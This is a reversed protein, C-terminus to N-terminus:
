PNLTKNTTFFTVLTGAKYCGSKYLKNEEVGETVTGGQYLDYRKNPLLKGSTFLLYDCSLYSLSYTLVEREGERLHLLTHSPFNHSFAFTTQSGEKLTAMQEPRGGIALLTGAKIEFTGSSPVNIPTETGGSRLFTRGATLTFLLNSKIANKSTSEIFYKGQNIYIGKDGQLAFDISNINMKANSLTIISPSAIGKTWASISFTGGNITIYPDITQQSSAATLANSKANLTYNGQNIIIYGNTVSITHNGNRAGQTNLTLSGGDGIYANKALLADKDANINLLAEASLAVRLTKQCFIGSAKETQLSLNGAGTLILTGLSYIAAINEDDNSFINCSLSSSTGAPINLFAKETNNLKIVANDHTLNLNQLTLKYPHASNINFSGSSSHGSLIYEVNQESSSLSLHAQNKHVTISGAGEVRVDTDSFTILVQRNFNYASPLDNLDTGRQRGGLAESSSDTLPTITIRQDAANPTTNTRPNTRKKSIKDDIDNNCGAMLFLAILCFLFNKKM